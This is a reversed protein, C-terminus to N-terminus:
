FLYLSQFKRSGQGFSCRTDVLRVLLHQKPSIIHIIEFFSRLFNSCVPNEPCVNSCASFNISSVPIDRINVFSKTAETTFCPFVGDIANYETSVINCSLSSIKRASLFMFFYNAFVCSPASFFRGARRKKHYIYISKNFLFVYLTQHWRLM